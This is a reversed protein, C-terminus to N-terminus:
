SIAQWNIECVGKERGVGPVRKELSDGALQDLGLQVVHPEDRLKDRAVDLALTFTHSPIIIL